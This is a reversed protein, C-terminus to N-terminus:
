RLAMIRKVMMRTTVMGSAAKIRAVLWEFSPLLIHGVQMSEMFCTHAWSELDYEIGLQQCVLMEVARARIERYVMAGRDGECYEELAEHINDRTWKATLKADLAHCAEHAADRPDRPEGGRKKVAAVLRAASTQKLKAM